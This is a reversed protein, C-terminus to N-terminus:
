TLCYELKCQQQKKNGPYGVSGQSISNATASSAISNNLNTSMVNVNYNYNNNILFNYLHKSYMAISQDPHRTFRQILEPPVQSRVAEKVSDRWDIISQLQQMILQQQNVNDEKGKLKQKNINGSKDKDKDKEKDKERYRDKDKDKIYNYTDKNMYMESEIERQKEDEKQRDDDEKTWIRICMKLLITLSSLVLKDPRSNHTNQQLYGILQQIFNDKAIVNINAACRAIDSLAAAATDSAWKNSVNAMEKKLYKVLKEGDSEKRRLPAANERDRGGKRKGHAAAIKLSDDSSSSKNDNDEKIRDKQNDKKNKKNRDRVNEKEQEKIRKRERARKKARNAGDTAESADEDNDQDDDFDDEDDSELDKQLQM